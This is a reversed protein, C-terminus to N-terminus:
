RRVALLAAALVGVLAVVLGFGPQGDTTTETADDTTTTTAPGSTTATTTDDTTTETTASATTTPTEAAEVMLLSADDPEGTTNGLYLQLSYGQAPLAGSGGSRSQVDVGDADRFTSFRIRNPGVGATEIQVGVRGDGNGDTTAVVIRHSSASSGVVVTAEETNNLRVDVAAVQGAEVVVRDDAFWAEPTANNTADQAQRAAAAGDPATAGAVAALSLLSLAVVVLGLSSRNM